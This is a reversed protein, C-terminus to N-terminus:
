TPNTKTADPFDDDFFLQDWHLPAVPEGPREIQLRLPDAHLAIVGGVTEMVLIEHCGICGGFDPDLEGDCEPCTAM